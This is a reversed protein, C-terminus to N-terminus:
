PPNWLSPLRDHVVGKILHSVIADTLPNDPGPLDLRRVVADLRADLAEEFVQRVTRRPKRTSRITDLVTYDGIDRADADTDPDYFEEPRKAYETIHLLRTVLRRADAAGRRFDYERFRRDLFASLANLYVCRLPPQDPRPMILAFT